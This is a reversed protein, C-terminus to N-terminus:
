FSVDYLIFHEPHKKLEADVYGGICLVFVGNEKPIEVARHMMLGGGSGGFEAPLPENEKWVSKAADFVWVKNTIGGPSNGGVMMLQTRSIPSLTQVCLASSFGAGDIKSWELRRLNLVRLDNLAVGNCVGGYTYVCDDLRAVGFGSRPTPGEGTTLVRSFENSITNYRYCDNNFYTGPVDKDKVFNSMRTEDVRQVLGGLIFIEDLCSWGGHECRPSPVDGTPSLRKFRGSPSLTSLADTYVCFGFDGGFIYVIEDCVVSVASMYGPHIDGTVKIVEWTGSVEGDSFSHADLNYCYVVDTPLAPFWGDDQMHGGGWLFVKGKGVAAIIFGEGGPFRTATDWPSISLASEFIQRSIRFYTFGKSQSTPTGTEGTEGTEQVTTRTEQVGQSPASTETRGIKAPNPYAEESLLNWLNMCFHQCNSDVLHYSENLEGKKNIRKIVDLVSKSRPQPDEVVLQQQQPRDEDGRKRRVVPTAHSVPRPCSQKLICENTKEVTFVHGSETEIEIFHHVLNKSFGSLIWPTWGDLATSFSTVKTIRSNLINNSNNNDRVFKELDTSEQRHVENSQDDYVIYVLSSSWTGGFISKGGSKVGSAGGAAM